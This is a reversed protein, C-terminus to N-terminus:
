IKAEIGEKKLYRLLAIPYIGSSIGPLDIKNTIADYRGVVESSNNSLEFHYLNYSKGILKVIVKHWEGAYRLRVLREAIM